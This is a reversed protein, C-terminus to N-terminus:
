PRETSQVIPFFLRQTKGYSRDFLIEQEGTWDGGDSFLSLYRVELPFSPDTIAIEELVVGSIQHASDTCVVEVGKSSTCRM